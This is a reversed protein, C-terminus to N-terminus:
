SGKKEKRSKKYSYYLLIVLQAILLGTFDAAFDLVDPTRYPVFIQHIEDSIGYISGIFLSAAGPYNKLTSNSSERLTFNILIGLNMYLLIHAAKDPYRYIPYFPYALFEWGKELFFHLIADLIGSRVPDPPSSLSSLYFLFAAYVVTSTLLIHFKTLRVM